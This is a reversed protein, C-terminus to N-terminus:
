TTAERSSIVPLDLLMPFPYTHNLSMVHDYDKTKAHKHPAHFMIGIEECSHEVDGDTVPWELFEFLAKVLVECKVGSAEHSFWEYKVGAWSREDPAFKAIREYENYIHHLYREMVAAHGRFNQDFDAAGLDVEHAAVTSWWDRELYLIKMTVEEEERLPYLAKYVWELDYHEDMKITGINCHRCEHEFPFSVFEVICTHTSKKVGERKNIDKRWYSQLNDPRNSYHNYWFQNRFNRDGGGRFMVKRRTIQALMEVLPKLAHHGAGEVGVVWIFTSKSEAKPSTDEAAELAKGAEFSFAALALLLYLGLANM